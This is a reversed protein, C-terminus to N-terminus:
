GVCEIYQNYCRGSIPLLMLWFYWKIPMLMLRLPLLMQWMCFNAIVDALVSDNCAIVDAETAIVDAVFVNAIVDALFFM